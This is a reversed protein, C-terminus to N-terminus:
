KILADYDCVIKLMKERIREGAKRVKFQKDIEDQPDDAV